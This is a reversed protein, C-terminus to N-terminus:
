EAPVLGTTSCEKALNGVDFVSLRGGQLTAEHVQAITAAALPTESFAAFLRTLRAGSAVGPM